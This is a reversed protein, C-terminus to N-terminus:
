FKASAYQVKWVWTPNPGLFKHVETNLLMNGLFYFNQSEPSFNLIYEVVLYLVKKYFFTKWYIGYANLNASMGPCVLYFLTRQESRWHCGGPDCTPYSSVASVYLPYTRLCYTAFNCNLGANYWSWKLM